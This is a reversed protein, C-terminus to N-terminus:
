EVKPLLLKIESRYSYKVLECVTAQVNECLKGRGHIWSGLVTATKYPCLVLEPTM